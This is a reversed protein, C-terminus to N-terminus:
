LQRELSQKSEDLAAWPDEQQRTLALLTGVRYDLPVVRKLAPWRIPMSVPAGALGRPSYPVTMSKGRVNM